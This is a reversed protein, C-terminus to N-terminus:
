VYSTCRFHHLKNSSYQLKPRSSFRMRVLAMGTLHNRIGGPTPWIACLLKSGYIFWALVTMSYGLSDRLEDGGGFLRLRRM